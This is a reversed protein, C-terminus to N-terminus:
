GPIYAGAMRLAKILKDTSEGLAKIAGAYDKGKAKEEGLKRLAESEAKMSDIQPAFSPHPPKESLTLKLLFVHSDNRDIEYVYEEEASAFSLEKTLKDGERLAAVETTISSYAKDLQVVAGEVNGSKAMAEIEAIHTIIGARRDAVKSAAGKEKAVRDFAELLAKVSAMRSDYLQQARTGKVSTESVRRTNTMVLELAKNLKDDAIQAKGDAADKTAEVVMKRANQLAQIADTDGSQEIARVSASSTVLNSVFKAKQDINATTVPMRPADQSQALAPMGGLGTLVASVALYYPLRKM